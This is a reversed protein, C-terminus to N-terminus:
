FTFRCLKETHSSPAQLKKLHDLVVWRRRLLEGASAPIGTPPAQAVLARGLPRNLEAPPDIM